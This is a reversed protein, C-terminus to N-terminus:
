SYGEVRLDQLWYQHFEHLDMVRGGNKADPPIEEFTFRYIKESHYWVKSEIKFWELDQLHTPRVDRKLRVYDGRRVAEIYKEETKRLINTM